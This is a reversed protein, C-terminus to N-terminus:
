QSLPLPVLEQEGQNAEPAIPLQLLGTNSEPMTNANVPANVLLRVADVWFKGAVGSYRIQIKMKALTGNVLKSDTLQTYEYNGKDINVSIKLKQDDTTKGKVTIRGSNNVVKKGKVMAYLTLTDNNQLQALAAVDFKQELRSNEGVSGKFEFACLGEYSFIKEFEPDTDLNKNCKVRDKTILKGNWSAPMKADNPAPTEFGGNVILDLAPAGVTITVTGISTGTVLDNVRYTFSDTGAFAANATYTFSGDANLTLTGNSTTTVLTATLPDNEADTDNALVGNSASIVLQIGGVANYSDNVAQPPTNVTVNNVTITVLGTDTNTGDSALYTFTAVGTFNSAPTYSFAGNAELTVTGNANSTDGITATLAQSNTHSDNALVGNAANVTLSTNIDTSYSDDQAVPVSSAVTITVAATDTGGLGDSVTYTFTDPGLFGANPTYSFSGDLSLTVTGNTSTALITASLVNNDPDTDNALVGQAANVQLTQGVSVSYQDDAAVPATNQSNVNINVTGTDSDVGDSVTYTFTDAGTFGTTPSYTFSGDAALTLTGNAPNTLVSVNLPDGDTDVDNALVGSSVPAVIPTNILTGYVDDTAVPASNVETVTISVTATTEGSSNIAAYTFSDVGSYNTAPTYIFSGDPNAALSGHTPQTKVVVTTNSGAPILDNALLGLDAGVVLQTDELTQYTDNNAVPIANGPNVTINVTAVNSNAAGDNARYTFSTTGSWNTAPVFTFSGDANLTFSQANAPSSGVLEATLPDSNADTDNALVGNSATTEIAVNLNTNYTDNQAVPASQETATFTATKKDDGTTTQSTTTFMQGPINITGVANAKVVLQVEQTNIYGNGFNCNILNGNRQCLPNTHSVYTANAPITITFTVNDSPAISTLAHYTITVNQNVRATNSSLEVQTFVNPLIPDVPEINSIMYFNDNYDFNTSTGGFVYDQTVLYTDPMIIGNIDRAPWIRIGHINNTPGCTEVSTCAENGAIRFYFADSRTVSMQTLPTNYTEGARPFYSQCFFDGHRMASKTGQTTDLYQLAFEATQSGGCGHFAGLQVAYIPKSLDKRKWNRRLIEEGAAQYKGGPIFGIYTGFGFSDFMEQQHLENSGESGPQYGLGLNVVTVANVPDNSNIILSGYLDDKEAQTEIVRLTVDRFSNAAINFANLGGIIQWRQPHSVVLSSINLQSQGRNYIRVTSERHMGRAGSTYQNKLASFTLWRDFWGTNQYGITRFTTWDRNQIEITPEAPGTLTRVPVVNRIIVVIDNYDFGSTYEEFAYVYANAEGPIPFVRFKHREDAQADWTNLADQSFVERLCGCDFFNPYTSYIGFPEVGPVFSLDGTITPNLRQHNNNSNNANVYFVENKSGPNGPTYWGHRSVAPTQNNAYGGLVQLTVPQSTNARTFTQSSIEDGLIPGSAASTSNIRTTAPDDDGVHIGLDFTDLIWQLSPENDGGNGSTGLGVVEVMEKQGNSAIVTIYAGYVGKSGPDFKVPVDVTSNAPIVLPSGASPTGNVLSFPTPKSVDIGVINLSSATNNKIQINKTQNAANGATTDSYITKTPTVDFSAANANVSFASVSLMSLISLIFLVKLVSVIPKKRKLM